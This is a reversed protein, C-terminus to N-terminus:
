RGDGAPFWRTTTTGANLERIAARVNQAAEIAGDDNIEFFEIATALELLDKTTIAHGGNPLDAARGTYATM